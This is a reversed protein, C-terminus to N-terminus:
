EVSQAMEKWARFIWSRTPRRWPKLGLNEVDDGVRRREEGILQPRRQGARDIARCERRARFERRPTLPALAEFGLRHLLHGIRTRQRNRHRAREHRIRVDAVERKSACFVPTFHPIFWIKVHTKV